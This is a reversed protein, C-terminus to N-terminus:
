FIEARNGQYNDMIISCKKFSPLERFIKAFIARISKGKLDELWAHYIHDRKVDYVGLM